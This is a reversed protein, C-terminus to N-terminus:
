LLNGAILINKIKDLCKNEEQIAHLTVAATSVLISCIACVGLAVVMIKKVSENSM